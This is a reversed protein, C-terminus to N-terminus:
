TLGAARRQSCAHAMRVCVRTYKCSSDRSRNQLRRALGKRRPRRYRSIGSGNARGDSELAAEHVGAAKLIALGSEDLETYNSTEARRERRNGASETM